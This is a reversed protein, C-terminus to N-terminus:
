GNTGGRLKTARALNSMLITNLRRDVPSKDKANDLLDILREVEDITFYVKIDNPVFDESM